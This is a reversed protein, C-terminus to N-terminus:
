ANLATVETQTLVRKWLGFLKLCGEFNRFDSNSTDFSITTFTGASAVSGNSQNDVIVGNLYSKFESEKWTLTFQNFDLASNVTLTSGFVDASDVKYVVRIENDNPRFFFTIRDNGDLLVSLSRNKGNNSIAAMDLHITGEQSNILSSLGGKSATDKLRTVGASTSVNEIYSTLSNLELQEKLITTVDCSMSLTGASPTFTVSVRENLGTGVLTGTHTGTFTITGLGYFSATYPDATVTVNQTQLSSQWLNLKQPEFLFAGSDKSYDLRPVNIGQSNVVDGSEDTRTAASGRVYDLDAFPSTSPKIVNIKGDSYATPTILISAEELLNSM